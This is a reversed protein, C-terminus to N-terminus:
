ASPRPRPSPLPPTGPLEAIVHPTASSSGPPARPPPHPPRCPPARQPPPRRIDAELRCWGVARWVLPEVLRVAQVRGPRITEATTQVLGSRLRLGDPAAAVVTGYEGNFQRWVALVIGLGVPLFPAITRTQGALAVVSAM